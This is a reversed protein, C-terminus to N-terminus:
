CAANTERIERERQVKRPNTFLSQIMWDYMCLRKVVYLSSLVIHMLDSVSAAASPESVLSTFLPLIHLFFCIFVLEALLM